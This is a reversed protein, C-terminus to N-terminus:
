VSLAQRRGGLKRRPVVLSPGAARVQRECCDGCTIRRLWTKRSEIANEAVAAPSATGQGVLAGSRHGRWCNGNKTV